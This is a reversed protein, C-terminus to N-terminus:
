TSARTRSSSQIDKQRESIEFINAPLKGHASWLDVQFILTDLSATENMIYMLPTNSVCGGDWYYEGDIEVAPFGPPLAGSAMVHEPGIMMHHNDFFVFNGTGVNTAGLSLRM